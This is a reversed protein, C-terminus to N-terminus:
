DVCITLTAAQLKYRHRKRAALLPAYTCVIRVNDNEHALLFHVQTIHASTLDNLSMLRQLQDYLYRGSMQPM